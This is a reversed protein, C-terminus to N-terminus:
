FDFPVVVQEVLDAGKKLQFRLEWAGHMTFFINTLRYVGPADTQSQVKVPASGHGMGPMWLLLLPATEPESWDSGPANPNWFALIISGTKEETPVVEWVYDACLGVSDFKLECSRKIKEFSSPPRVSTKDQYNPRACAGLMAFM